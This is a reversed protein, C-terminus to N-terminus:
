LGLDMDVSKQKPEPTKEHGSDREPGRPEIREQGSERDRNSSDKATRGREAAREPSKRDREGDIEHGARHERKRSRDVNREIERVRDTADRMGWDRGGYRELPLEGARVAELDAHKAMADLAAIREGTAKELHDALRKADDTVLEARDRARSIAVYFSKRTTLKPHNAPMAAIIRDVTRGQFTHITAAWAWDMHRLQPDGEALSMVSGGELRFRVGDKAVSDVTAVQGNVLGSGPDNRTWRVRDGARLELGESRYVEVGGKAGALLYPRWEVINGRGDRLHVENRKYDIKAVEREDGKEVGLTKYQRNFIVTDGATYHATRAMETNTLGRSVLKEGQRAPGHVTGEAILRARITKNIEDRLARTPAIVGTTARLEPSLDLWRSAADLGLREKTVESVREGLKAFATKLEGSLSARVAEKLEAGRQRLIEDMVATQMGAQKLQAFPKGADVGDLQKEDGVLVVRPIRLATAIKFLGRMQESSALSSEDMVLITKEYSARLNRWGKATGRGEAIGAHRTM